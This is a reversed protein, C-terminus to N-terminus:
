APRGGAAGSEAPAPAPAPAAEPRVPTKSPSVRIPLSGLLAGSCNLAAM